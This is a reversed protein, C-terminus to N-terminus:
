FCRVGSETPEFGAPVPADPGTLAVAKFLVGMQDPAVLRRCRSRIDARRAPEAAALLRRQRAELGLRALFAGQPVPGHVAAGRSRAARALAQFDVHASLDADGPADLVGVPRHRRVAQLTEGPASEGHGYDVILAAGGSDAIRGAISAAVARAAPSTEWVAGDPADRVAADPCPALPGDRFCLRGTAADVAVCRRHWGDGRRVHHEVPLADFFENAILITPGEPLTRLGAHWRARGGGLAARQLRALTPSTEILHLDIAAAFDPLVASAARLVDAMLTGRGPGLEALVVPAPAGLSRWAVACWAGILEGFVQSIEPATIFDGDRGLPDRSRYYGHDPDNNAAEIFRALPMPGERAIRARIAEELRTM